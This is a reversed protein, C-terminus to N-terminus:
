VALVDAEDEFCEADVQQLQQLLVAAAAEREREHAEERLLQQLRQNQQSLEAHDV